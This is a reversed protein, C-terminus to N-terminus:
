YVCRTFNQGFDANFVFYCFNAGALCAEIKGKFMKKNFQKM